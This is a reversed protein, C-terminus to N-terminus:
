KESLLKALPVNNVYISVKKVTSFQLATQELQAQVRPNDCVGGLIMKGTLRVTALGDKLTVSSLKLSSQYLSNYLGSQGYNQDKISLLKNLSAKLVGTTYPVQVDVAVASDGCGTLKGSVGNDNLAILFIKLTMSTPTSTRTPNKTKTPAKVKAKNAPTPTSLIVTATPALPTFTDVALSTVIAAPLTHTSPPLTIAAPQTPAPAAASPFPLSCSSAALLILLTVLYFRSKM